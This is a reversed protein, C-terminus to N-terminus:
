ITRVARVAPADSRGWDPPLEPATMADVWQRDDGGPWSGPANPGAYVWESRWGSGGIALVWGSPLVRWARWRQADPATQVTIGHEAPLGHKLADVITDTLGDADSWYRDDNGEYRGMECVSVWRLREKTEHFERRDLQAGNADVGALGTNAELTALRQREAEDQEHVERRFTRMFSSAERFSRSTAVQNYRGIFRSALKVRMRLGLLVAIHVRIPLRTASSVLRLRVSVTEAVMLFAAGYFFPLLLAPLWVGLLFSRFLGVWDLADRDRIIAATTWLVLGVGIVSLLGGTVKRVSAWERRTAAVSNLMVLATAVVQLLLEGVLSLPEVNVYFEFLAVFGLADLALRRVIAGGTEAKPIRFMMPIAFTLTIIISDKLLSLDWLAVLSGLRLCVAIWCLLALFSVVLKWHLARVISGSGERLASRTSPWSLLAILAAGLLILSAIERTTLM